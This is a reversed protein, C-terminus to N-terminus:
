ISVFPTLGSVACKSFYTFKIRIQLLDWTNQIKMEALFIQENKPTLAGRQGSNMLSPTCYFPTECVGKAQEWPSTSMARYIAQVAVLQSREPPLM